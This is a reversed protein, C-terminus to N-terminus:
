CRELEEESFGFTAGGDLEVTYNAETEGDGTDMMAAARVTGTRGILSDSRLAPASPNVIRVRSGVPFLSASMAGGWVGGARDRM